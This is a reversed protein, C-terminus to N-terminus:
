KKILSKQLQEMEDTWVKQEKYWKIAGPHYPITAATSVMVTPTWTKLHAHIAGMEEYHQWVTKVIEYAVDDSLDGKASLTTSYSLMNTPGYIGPGKTVTQIYFPFYERTRKMAEPSADCSIFRVGMTTNVEVVKASDITIFTADIKGETLDDVVTDYLSARPVEIVDNYTLGANALFGLYCVEISLQGKFRPFKKGKLDSLTKINSKAPVCFGLTNPSGSSLLLINYGKGKTPENYITKGYYAQQCEWSNIIGAGVEGREMMPLWTTPGATAIVKPKISTHKHLIDAVASAALHHSSGTKSAGIRLETAVQTQASADGFYLGGLLLVAVLCYAMKRQTADM